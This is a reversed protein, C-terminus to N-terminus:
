HHPKSQNPLLVSIPQRMATHHRLSVPPTLVTLRTTTLHTTPTTNSTAMTPDNPLLDHPPQQGRGRGGGVWRRGAGLCVTAGRGVLHGSHRTGRGAVLGLGLRHRDRRRPVPPSRGAGGLVGRGWFAGALFAAAASPARWSPAPRWSPVRWSPERPRCSPPGSPRPWAGAGAAASAPESAVPGCAALGRTVTVAGVGDGPLPHGDQVEVPVSRDTAIM